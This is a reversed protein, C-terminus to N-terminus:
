IEELVSESIHLWHSLYLHLMYFFSFLFLNSTTKSAQCIPLYETNLVQNLERTNTMQTRCIVSSYSAENIKQSGAVSRPQWLTFQVQCLIVVSLRPSFDSLLSFIHDTASSYTSTSLYRLNICTDMLSPQLRRYVAAISMM